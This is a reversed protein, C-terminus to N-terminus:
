KDFEAKTITTWVVFPVVRSDNTKYLLDFYMRDGLKPFARGKTLQLTDIPIEQTSKLYTNCGGDNRANRSSKARIVYVSLATASSVDQAEEPIVKDVRISLRCRRVYSADARRIDVISIAGIAIVIAIAIIVLRSKQRQKGVDAM